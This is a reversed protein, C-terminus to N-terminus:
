LISTFDVISKRASKGIGFKQKFKNISEFANLIQNTKKAFSNIVFILQLLM